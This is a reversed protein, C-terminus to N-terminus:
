GQTGGTARFCQLPHARPRTRLRARVRGQLRLSSTGQQGSWHLQHVWGLQHAETMCCAASLADPMITALDIAALQIAFPDVLCGKSSNFTWQLADLFSFYSDYNGSRLHRAHLRIDGDVTAKIFAVARRRSDEDEDRPDANALRRGLAAVNDLSTTRGDAPEIAVKHSVATTVDLSAKFRVLTTDLIAALEDLTMWGSNLAPTSTQKRPSEWRSRSRAKKRGCRQRNRRGSGEWRKSASGRLAGTLMWDPEDLVGLTLPADTLRIPRQERQCVRSRMACTFDPERALSVSSETKARAVGVGENV